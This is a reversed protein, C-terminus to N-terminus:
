AVEVETFLKLNNVKISVSKPGSISLISAEDSQETVPCMLQVEERQFDSSLISCGFRDKLGPMISTESRYPEWPGRITRSVYLRQQKSVEDDAQGERLRDCSAIMLYYLQTTPSYLVKPVEAQTFEHSDPLLIPKMLHRVSVNNESVDLIVHAIVPTAPTSKASWLCHLTGDPSKILFPDRWAMIPGGAEGNKHGLRDISDLYYGRERIFQYDRRPHLTARELPIIEHETDTSFGFCISQMFPHNDDVGEIGTFGHLTKGNKLHIASGSWVNGAYSMDESESPSLVPGLDSWNTGADYTRFKRIHFAHSNRESPQIAKGCDNLRSLSLCYFDYEDKGNSTTWSDWLWYDPHVIGNTFCRNFQQKAVELKTTMM